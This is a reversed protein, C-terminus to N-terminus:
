ERADIQRHVQSLLGDRDSKWVLLREGNHDVVESSNEQATELVHLCYCLQSGDHPIDKLVSNINLCLLFILSVVCPVCLCTISSVSDFM